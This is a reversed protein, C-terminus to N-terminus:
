RIRCLLTLCKYSICFLVVKNQKYPAQVGGAASYILLGNPHPKRPIYVVPIPEGKEAAKEKTDKSPQYECMSEDIAVVSVEEVNSFLSYGDIYANGLHLM